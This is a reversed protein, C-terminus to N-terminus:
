AVFSFVLTTAGKPVELSYNGDVDTVMGATTGKVLVTAGVMPAGKDDSVKGSISSQAMTTSMSLVVVSLMLLFKKKM